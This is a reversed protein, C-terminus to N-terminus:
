GNKWGENNIWPKVNVWRGAGFCSRIATWVARMVGGVYQYLVGIPKYENNTRESLSNIDKYEGNIRYRLAM